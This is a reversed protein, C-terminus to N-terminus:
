RVAEAPRWVGSDGPQDPDPNVELQVPIKPEGVVARKGTVIIEGLDAEDDVPDTM